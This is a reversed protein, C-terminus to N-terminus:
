EHDAPGTRATRVGPLEALEGALSGLDGRGALQLTVAAIRDGADDCDERTVDIDNVTFGRDTCVTLAARLVGFGDAYSLHLRPPNRRRVAVARALRPYGLTVLFHGGTAAVALIPLGAGCAMGVAAVAERELGIATSLVLALLIPWLFTWQDPTSWMAAPM